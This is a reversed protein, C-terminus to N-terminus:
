YYIEVWVFDKMVLSPQGIILKCKCIIGLSGPFSTYSWFSCLFIKPPFFFGLAWNLEAVNFYFTTKMNTQNCTFYWLAFCFIVYFTLQTLFDQKWIPKRKGALFMCAKSSLTQFFSSLSTEALSFASHFLILAM